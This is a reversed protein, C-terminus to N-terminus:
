SRERRAKSSRRPNVGGADIELRRLPMPAFSEAEAAVRARMGASAADVQLHPELLTNSLALHLALAQSAMVGEFRGEGGLPFPAAGDLRLALSAKGQPLEVAGARLRHHRGDSDLAAELTSFLVEDGGETQATDQADAGAPLTRLVFSGVALRTLEIALPLELSAPPAPPEAVPEDAATARALTVRAASLEDVQVRRELLAGPQWALVLQRLEIELGPTRWALADVEFGGLVRGRAGEVQLAGGAARQALALGADLGSQTGLLWAVSGALVAVPMAVGWALWRWGRSRLWSPRRPMPAPASSRGPDNRRESM